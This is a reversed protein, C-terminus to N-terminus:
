WPPSTTSLHVLLFRDKSLPNHPLPPSSTPHPLHQQHRAHRRSCLSQSLHQQRHTSLCSAHKTHPTYTSSNNSSNSNPPCNLSFIGEQWKISGGGTGGGSSGNGKKFGLGTSLAQSTRQNSSCSDRNTSSHM